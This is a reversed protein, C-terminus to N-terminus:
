EYVIIGEKKLVTEFKLLFEECLEDSETEILIMFKDPIDSLKLVIRGREELEEGLELVIKALLRNKKGDKDDKVRYEKVIFHGFRPIKNIYDSAEQYFPGVEDIMMQCHAIRDSLTLGEAIGTEFTRHSFYDNVPPPFAFGTLRCFAFMADMSRSKFALNKLYEIDNENEFKGYSIWYDPDEIFWYDPSGGLKEIAMEYPRGSVMEGVFFNLFLRDSFDEPDAHIVVAASVTEYDNRTIKRKGM